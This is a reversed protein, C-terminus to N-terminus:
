KGMCVIIEKEFDLYYDLINLLIYEVLDNFTVHKIV